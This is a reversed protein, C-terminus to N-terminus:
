DRGSAPPGWGGGGPTEIRLRQGAKMQVAFCGPLPSENGDSDVLTTEGPKGSLGGNLGFPVFQGRRQALLTVSLTTLFELERLLGDGGPHQGDGGSETRIAHRRVRVPFRHELIEVDTMRTNTMHTHVADCGAAYPTAGSGGCITEYYGFTRDGFTLNNMTGQSAAARGLAGLLVDVVRQSTEVNGGVVAPCDAPDPKAPPNLLCEPLELDIVDLVGSNLPVDENILCRFVYLLAATVIARNANLNSSLVPGTGTFDVRARGEGIAITVAIPSGDDLHDVFRHEGQPFASLALRTKEAAAARIQAVYHFVTTEHHENVLGRLQRVGIENAAMQARLDALNEEIRRAPWPAEKLINRLEPFYDRESSQLLMPRIVVGEEALNKSFPPMSGPTIGGIDAHHARSAVLFQLRGNDGVVPTVVTIDPLHSGGRYPDNTVFVDGARMKPFAQLMHRVTESMAGLHVPVHPANAILSGTRDFVACSYDLREKVNVSQATQRLTEGMQEAISAFQNHFLELLIPSTEESPEENRPHSATTATQTIKLMGKGDVAATFGPEVFVVSHADVILAPGGVNLGARLRTRQKVLAEQWSGHVFVRTTQEQQDTNDDPTQADGILAQQTAAVLEVRATVIELPHGTRRYGFRKFFEGDFASRFDGNAPREITLPTETGLYRLDLSRLEAVAEEVPIGQATLTTRAEDRLSTFLEELQEAPTEEYRRLVSRAAIQRRNGCGIGYASFLSALPHILIQPFGVEVALACAHQGGAGGFSVMTHEAPDYGRAVSVRRIARAMLINAIELFGEALEEVSYRRGLPSAAVDDCLTQLKTRVAAENLPFPFHAPIIRGTILNMDTVTLPGGRGYCCPGPDAGASQPGVLLRVGDFHCISGGGAAVTEIALMPTAIRIGAKVSEYERHFRGDFRCVDTSTGGMDFGIAQKLDYEERVQAIGVVGGAPGSLISDKGFFHDAAVLGGSSTMLELQSGPLSQQISAIYRQLVPNLYADILTTDGRAILGILPSVRHSVSVHLFGIETAVRAIREEHAPNKWAHVLCIAVARFGDDYLRQLDRQVQRLNPSVLINGDEAIREDVELISESLPSPKEIELDFLRPRDQHGIKLADGFGATTVYVCRAGRRELLANTGRTTGLRVQVAPIAEHRSRGLLYRIGVVPAEEGGVLEYNRGVFEDPLRDRLTLGGSPDSDVVTTEFPTEGSLRFTYGSWVGPPDQRRSPDHISRAVSSAVGGIVVGSSLTKHTLAQGSPSRAVLDTFTGGADIAFKWCTTSSATM